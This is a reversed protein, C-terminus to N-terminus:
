RGSPALRYRVLDQEGDAGTQIALLRGGRAAVMITRLPLEVAGLYDYDSSYVHYTPPELWEGESHNGTSDAALRARSHVRVWLRGDSDFSLDRFAPKWMRIGWQGRTLRTLYDREGQVVPLAETQREIFAVRKGPGHVRLQYSGSWGVVWRDDASRAWHALPEFIARGPEVRESEAAPPVLTDILSGISDLHLLGSEFAKGDARPLPAKIYIDGADTVIM